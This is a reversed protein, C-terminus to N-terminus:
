KKFNISYKLPIIIADLLKIIIVLVITNWVWIGGFEWNKM